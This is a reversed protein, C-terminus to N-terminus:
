RAASLEVSLSGLPRIAADITDGPRVRVPPNLSGCIIRDGGRLREGLSELITATFRVISAPEGVLLSSDLPRPAGGSISLGPGLGGVTLDKPAPREEGFVVCAHFTNRALIV